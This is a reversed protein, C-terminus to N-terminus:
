GGVECEQGAIPVGGGPPSIRQCRFRPAWPLAENENHPPRAAASAGSLGANRESAVAECLTDDYLGIVM